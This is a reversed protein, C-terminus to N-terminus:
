GTLTRVNTQHIDVHETVCLLSRKLKNDPSLNRGLIATMILGNYLLMFAYMFLIGYPKKTLICEFHIYMTCLHLGNCYSLPCDKLAGYEGSTM